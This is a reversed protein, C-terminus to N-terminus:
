GSPIEALEMIKQRMGVLIELSPHGQSLRVRLQRSRERVWAPIHILAFRIAKMRKTVWSGELVLRKMAENLNLALIMIWWWAANEGFDGSPLKGGSFDEKMIGHAEESKGCRGRHWHILEEGPLDRNTVIGFLKYSGSAFEMTPFPLTQQGEMGPLAKQLLPERIAIFRYSPGQKSLGVRSPVFCVEAWQQETEIWGGDRQRRLPQWEGESVQAVARKFEVTVDAGVAFEIVGFRESQGEACYELFDWEYGATDTRLFVRGVGAPLAALAEKLVRLPEYGAPVNGDRFETHVVVGQEAWWLNLPQYAKYRKYGYLAEAKNTAVLTADEDLTATQKPKKAQVRALFDRNVAMLGGLPLSVAPIFARGAERRKEEKPDHFASLYRFVSSPSPVSRRQERRWRREMDRREKRSLGAFRVRRLVRCFGEDKELIRLDEVCDGGALNLLILSLIVAEDSWGQGGERVHLHKRISKSLGMVHAFDLYVPLGALATMGREVGEEEYKFALVGQAM